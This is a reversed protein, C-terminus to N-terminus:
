ATRNETVGGIRRRRIWSIGGLLTFVRRRRATRQPAACGDDQHNIHAAMARAAIAADHQGFFAAFEPPCFVALWRWGTMGDIDRL